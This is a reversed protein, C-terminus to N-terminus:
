EPITISINFIGAIAETSKSLMDLMKRDYVPLGLQRLEQPSRDKYADLFDLHSTAEAFSVTDGSTARMALGLTRRVPDTAEPLKAIHEYLAETHPAKLAIGLQKEFNTRIAQLQEDATKAPSNLTQMDAPRIPVQQVDTRKIDPAQGVLPTTAGGPTADLIYMKGDHQFATQQHGLNNLTTSSPEITLGNVTSASPNGFAKQLSLKLFSAAGTCQIQLKGGAVVRGFHQLDSYPARSYRSSRGLIEDNTPVPYNSEAQIFGRLEEVTLTSQSKIRDALTQLGLQEYEHTLIQQADASIPVNAAVYPDAADHMFEYADGNHRVLTYGPIDPDAYTFREDYLFLKLDSQGSPRPLAPNKEQMQIIRPSPVSGSQVSGISEMSAQQMEEQTMYGCAENPHGHHSRAEKLTEADVFEGCPALLRDRLETGTSLPTYDGFTGIVSTASYEIAQYLEYEIDDMFETYSAPCDASFLEAIGQQLTFRTCDYGLPDSTDVSLTQLEDAVVETKYALIYQRQLRTDIDYDVKTNNLFDIIYQRDPTDKGGMQKKATIYADAIRGAFYQRARDHAGQESQPERKQQTQDDLRWYARRLANDVPGGRPIDEVRVDDGMGFQQMTTRRAKEEEIARQRQDLPVEKTLPQGQVDFSRLLANAPNNNCLSRVEPEAGHLRQRIDAIVANEVGQVGTQALAVYSEVACEITFPKRADLSPKTKGMVETIVLGEPLQDDPKGFMQWRLIDATRQISQKDHTSPAASLAREVAADFKPRQEAEVESSCSVIEM